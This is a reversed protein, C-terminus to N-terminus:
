MTLLEQNNENQRQDAYRRWEEQQKNAEDQSVLLQRLLRQTNDGTLHSHDHNPSLPPESEPKPMDNLYNLKVIIVKPISKVTICTCEDLCKPKTSHIAKASPRQIGLTNVLDIVTATIM